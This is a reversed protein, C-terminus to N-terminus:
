LSYHYNKEDALLLKGAITKVFTIISSYLVNTWYKEFSNKICKKYIIIIHKIKQKIRM